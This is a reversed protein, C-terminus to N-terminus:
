SPCPGFKGDKRYRGKDFAARQKNPNPPARMWSKRARKHPWKRHKRLQDVKLTQHAIYGREKRLQEYSLSDIRQEECSSQKGLFNNPRIRCHNEVPNIVEIRSHAVASKIFDNSVQGQANSSAAQTVSAPLVHVEQFCEDFAPEKAMEFVDSICDAEFTWQRAPRPIMADSSIFDEANEVTKVRKHTIPLYVVSHFKVISNRPEPGRKRKSTPGPLFYQEIINGDETINGDNSPPTLSKYEVINGDNSPPPLSENFLHSATPVFAGESRRKKCSVEVCSRDGLDVFADESLYFAFDEESTASDSSQCDDMHSAFDCSQGSEEFDFRVQAPKCNDMWFADSSDCWPEKAEESDACEASDKCKLSQDDDMCLDDIGDETDHKDDINLDGHRDDIGDETHNTILNQWDDDMCLDVIGDKTDHKYDINLDGHRDDIGDQTHNIILNNIGDETDNIIDLNQWWDDMCLNNIGDETENIIKPERANCSFTDEAGTKCFVRGSSTSEYFVRGNTTSEYFV